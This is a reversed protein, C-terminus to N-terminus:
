NRIELAGLAHFIIFVSIMGGKFSYKGAKVPSM